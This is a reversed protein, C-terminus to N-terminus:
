KNYIMSDFIALWFREAQGHTDIKSMVKLAQLNDLEDFRKVYNVDNVDRIECLREDIYFERDMMEVTKLRTM